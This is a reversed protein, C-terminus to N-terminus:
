VYDIAINRRTADAADFGDSPAWLWVGSAPPRKLGSGVPSRFYRTPRGAPKGTIDVGTPRSRMMQSSAVVDSVCKDTEVPCQNRAGSRISYLIATTVYADARLSV